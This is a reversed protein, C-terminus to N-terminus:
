DKGLLKIMPKTTESFGNIIKLYYGVLGLFSHINVVSASVNWSLVERIKSSDVFIGEELIIHCLFSV